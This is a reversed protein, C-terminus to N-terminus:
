SRTAKYTIRIRKGSSSELPEYTGRIKAGNDEELEIHGGAFYHVRLSRGDPLTVREPIGDPWSFEFMVNRMTESQHPTTRDMPSVDHAELTM